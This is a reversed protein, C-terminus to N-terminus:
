LCAKLVVPDHDSLRGMYDSNIHMIELEACKNFVKNNVFIYDLSQSSGNFNTSYRQNKPLTFIMNKLRTENNSLVALSGEQPLANFDGLVVINAKPNQQELWRIYDNIKTAMQARKFDSNARAPQNVGWFDIDGLKSNLHNGIVYLKEGPKAIIDFENIVSRRSNRFAEHNPFIRGPNNSIVGGKLITAQAGLVGDSRFDHHLKHANYMLAVRINGGPQGGEANFYPDVNVYRYDKQLCLSQLIGKIKKLTETADQDERFSIGNNDQVEVLNIVDPCNLNNAMSEALVKIRDLQHGSLNELNYTAVLIEDDKQAELKTIGRELVPIFDRRHQRKSFAEQAEPLVIAYEGGGFVNKQYTLVGKVSGQIVDGVNFVYEAANKDKPVLGENNSLHNTTITVIEPNYDEKEFNILLGGRATSDTQSYEGDSVVYLNLYFRQSVEILNEKGGRFGLIKPNRLEVRMGELSEWFDVGDELKLVSKRMLNGGYTSIRDKPVNRGGDGLIIPQPLNKLKEEKALNPDSIIKYETVDRLGTEGLGSKRIDEYVVGTVEIEDGLDFDAKNSALYDHLGESTREDNDPEKSQIYVDNGFPYWDATGFATVVGRTVVKKGYIPSTHSPGQIESIKKYGIDAAPAKYVTARKQGWYPFRLTNKLYSKISENVSQMYRERRFNFNFGNRYKYGPFASGFYFDNSVAIRYYENDKLPFRGDINYNAATPFGGQFAISYYLGDVELEADYTERVRELVFEKIRDGRMTGILLKDKPGRPFNKLVEEIEYDTMKPKIHLLENKSFFTSPLFVFDLNHTRRIATTVFNGIETSTVFRNDTSLVTPNDLHSGTNKTDTCQILFPLFLIIGLKLIASRFKLFILDIMKVGKLLTLSFSVIQKWSRVFCVDV